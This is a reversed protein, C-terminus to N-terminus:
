DCLIYNKIEIHKSMDHFMLNELINVYSQDDCYIVTLNLVQDSLGSVLKCLWMAEKCADCCAIYKEETTNLAVSKHKRRAWLMMSFRLIFCMWTASRIDNANREWDSDIFGHLQIDYSLPGVLFIYLQTNELYMLLVIFQRYLSPDVPDFDRLKKLDTIM